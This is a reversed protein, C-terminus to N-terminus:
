SESVMDAVAQLFGGAFDNGCIIKVKRKDLHMALDPCPVFAYDAEALMPIDFDSDGAAVIYGGLIERLRRTATGKDLGKPFVYIKNRFSKIEAREGLSATLIELTSQPRESLAFVYVGDVWRSKKCDSNSSLLEFATRLTEISEDVVEATRKAWDIDLIGDQYLVGGNAVLAYRPKFREFLTLRAFQESSRSTLPIIDIIGYLREYLAYAENSMFSFEEGNYREVCIAGSQKVKSSILTNDVDCVLIM